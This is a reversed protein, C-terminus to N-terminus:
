VLSSGIDINSLDFGEVKYDPVVIMDNAVVWEYATWVMDGNECDIQTIFQGASCYGNSECDEQTLFEPEECINIDGNQGGLYVGPLELLAALSDEGGAEIIDDINYIFGIAQQEEYNNVRYVYLVPNKVANGNYIDGDGVETNIEFKYLYCNFIIM